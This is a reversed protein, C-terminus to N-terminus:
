NEAEDKNLDSFLQVVVSLDPRINIKLLAEYKDKIMVYAGLIM